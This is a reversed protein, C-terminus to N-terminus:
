LLYPEGSLTVFMEDLHLTAGPRRRAAKVRHSFDAGFKECCRRIREDSVVVGREFPREGVDRLSLQLRFYWRVACSIVVAPFRHGPYLSTTNKM